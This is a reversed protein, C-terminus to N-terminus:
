YTLSSPCLPALCHDGEVEDRSLMLLACMPLFQYLGSLITQWDCECNLNSLREDAKAIKQVKVLKGKAEVKRLVM